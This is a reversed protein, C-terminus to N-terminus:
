TRRCRWIHILSLGWGAIGVVVRTRMRRTRTNGLIIRRRWQCFLRRYDFASVLFVAASAFCLMADVRSRRRLSAYLMADVRSRRLPTYYWSPFASSSRLPPNHPGKITKTSMTRRRRRRQTTWILWDKNTGRRWWRRDEDCVVSATPNNCLLSTSM